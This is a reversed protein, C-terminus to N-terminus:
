LSVGIVKNNIMYEKIYYEEQKKTLRDRKEKKM